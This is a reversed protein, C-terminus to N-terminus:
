KQKQSGGGTQTPRSHLTIFSRFLSILCMMHMAETISPLVVKSTVSAVFYSEAKSMPLNRVSKAVKPKAILRGLFLLKRLAIEQEISNLGELRQLLLKPSSQPVYFIIKLFWSKCRELKTLLFPTLTSRILINLYKEKVLKM